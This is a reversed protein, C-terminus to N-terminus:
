ANDGTARRQAATAFAADDTGVAFKCVITMLANFWRLDNRLVLPQAPGRVDEIFRQLAASYRARGEPRDGLEFWLGQWTRAFRMAIQRVQSLNPHPVADAFLLGLHDNLEWPTMVTPVNVTECPFAAIDGAQPAIHVSQWGARPADHPRGRNVLDWFRGGGVTDVVLHVRSQVADNLVRHQRWTDFIWCEGAAMNIVAKDCEFQVTPQTVVPIHVRVRETWYYGQDAHRTVEAHGSLRMLRSRGVTAGLSAFVQTLYPCRLLEPTPRMPGAFAENDANGEVAVLPLMSNGAFGQPHPKWPGEGLADIEAALAAADFALPLQIFPVQLKM